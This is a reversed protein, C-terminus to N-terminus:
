IHLIYTYNFWSHLLIDKPYEVTLTAAVCDRSLQDGGHATEEGPYQMKYAYDAADLTEM